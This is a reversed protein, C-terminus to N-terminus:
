AISDSRAAISAFARLAGSCIATSASGSAHNDFGVLADVNRAASSPPRTAATATASADGPRTRYVSASPRRCLVVTGPQERSDHAPVSSSLSPSRLAAAPKESTLTSTSGRGAARRRNSATADTPEVSISTTSSAPPNKAIMFICIRIPPPSAALSARCGSAPKASTTPLASAFRASSRTFANM